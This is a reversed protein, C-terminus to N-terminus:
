GEVRVNIRVITDGYFLTGNIRVLNMKTILEEEIFTEISEALTENDISSYPTSILISINLENDSKASNLKVVRLRPNQGDLSMLVNNLTSYPYRDSFVGTNLYDCAHSASARVYSVVSIINNEEFYTPTLLAVVMLILTFILVVEIASQAKKDRLELM